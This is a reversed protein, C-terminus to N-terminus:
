QLPLTEHFQRLDVKIRGSASRGLIDHFRRDWLIDEPIYSYRAFVNQSLTDDIGSVVVMFESDARVFDEHKKKYLPSDATIEHVVTWTMSFLPSVARELKLDYLNRFTDGESTQETRVLVVSVTAQVIQNLRTNAMRFTLCPVGDLNQILAQRSFVVKARPRSFRAFILGTAMAISIMGTLAELTVILNASLGIPSIHGYGITALTQVSFFFCDLARSVGRETHLGSLAAPGILFYLFGFLSNVLLYTSLVLAWFQPWSTSLLVHYLDDWRSRRWGEREINFTGDPNLFRQYRQARNTSM